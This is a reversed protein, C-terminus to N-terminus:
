LREFPRYEGEEAQEEEKPPHVIAALMFKLQELGEGTASSIQLFPMEHEAAIEKVAAIREPDQAADVKSAVVLMPKKPLEDSFSALENLIIEFDSRPDRGTVDSVDVMHVLVRTREIHKLFQIGLGHGEHAGEILGPIDAVVFSREDPMPVVGLRPELTTFPYDAIKPRAASIRSILTSKGANPFGVLGVDALIKLELRLTKEEGPSGSEHETPAQHSPTAFHQNGRGGRGGKAIVFREGAKTLDYIQEGTHWDYVVTGVPVDVERDAGHRGSCNSGEGHRGREAKHEPNFRLELLTNRHESAVLIVNGGRGGDGGSPGGRPVFKERRFAMCGNGGDGAKVYIKVEDIFM